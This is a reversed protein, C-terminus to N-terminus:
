RGASGGAPPTTGPGKQTSPELEERRRPVVQGNALRIWVVEVEEGSPLRFVSLPARTAL